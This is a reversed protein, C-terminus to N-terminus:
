WGVRSSWLTGLDVALSQGPSKSIPPKGRGSGMASVGSSPQPRGNCATRGGIRCTARGNRLFPGAAPRRSPRGSPGRPGDWSCGRSRGSFRGALGGAATGAIGLFLRFEGTTWARVLRGLLGVAVGGVIIGRVAALNGNRVDSLYVMLTAYLFLVFSTLGWIGGGGVARLGLAVAAGILLLIGAMRARSVAM